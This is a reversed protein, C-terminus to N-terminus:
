KEKGIKLIENYETSNLNYLCAFKLALKEDICAESKEISRLEKTTKGLMDAVYKLSLGMRKRYIELINAM